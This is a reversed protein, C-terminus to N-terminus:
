RSESLPQLVRLRALANTLAVSAVADITEDRSLDQTHRRTARQIHGAEYRIAARALQLLSSEASSGQGDGLHDVLAKAEARPTSTREALLTYARKELFTVHLGRAVVALMLLKPRLALAGDPRLWKQTLDQLLSGISTGVLTGTWEGFPGSVDEPALVSTRHSSLQQWGHLLPSVIPQILDFYWRSTMDELRHNVPSALMTSARNVLTGLVASGVVERIAPPALGIDRLQEVSGGQHSRLRGQSVRIAFRLAGEEARDRDGLYMDGELRDLDSKTYGAMRLFAWFTGFCFRCANDRAVVFCIASVLDTDIHHVTPASLFLFPRYLWPHPALYPVVTPVLGTRRRFKRSLETSPQPEVLPADWSSTDPMSAPGVGTSSLATM